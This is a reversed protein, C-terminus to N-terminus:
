PRAERSPVFPGAPAEQADDAHTRAALAALRAVRRLLRSLSAGEAVRAAGRVSAVAAGTQDVFLAPSESREGPTAPHGAHLLALGVIRDDADFRVRVVASELDALAAGCRDCVVCTM